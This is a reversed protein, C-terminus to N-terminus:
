VPTNAVFGLTLGGLFSIVGIWTTIRLNWRMKSANKVSSLKIGIKWSPISWLIVLNALISLLFLMLAISLFIQSVTEFGPESGFLSFIAFSATNISAFWVHFEKRDKLWELIAERKEESDIDGFINSKLEGWDFLMIWIGEDLRYRSLM